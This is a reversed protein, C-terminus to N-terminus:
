SALQPFATIRLKAAGYPILTLIVEPNDSSQPSTPVANAVGDKSRWSDLLRGPVLLHVGVGEKSFPQAGVAHEVVKINTSHEDALLAYNWYTTPFVQWDATPKRDRLKVFNAGPELSFVLPGCSLSIYGLPSRAVVPTMPFQLDIVDGPKWTRAIRAFTGAQLAIPEARGNIRITPDKAWAPIRVHLPFSL